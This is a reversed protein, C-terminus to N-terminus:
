PKEEDNSNQEKDLGKNTRRCLMVPRINRTEKPEIQRGPQGIVKGSGPMNLQRQEPRRCGEKGAADEQSGEDRTLLRPPLVHQSVHQEPCYSEDYETGKGTLRQRDVSNRPSFTRHEALLPLVDVQRLHELEQEGKAHEQPHENDPTSHM